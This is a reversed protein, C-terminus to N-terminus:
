RAAVRVPEVQRANPHGHGVITDLLAVLEPGRRRLEARHHLSLERLVKEGESTLLVHVERRDHAARQRHVLGQRLTRDVLEGASHHRICLTDAIEGIRLRGGDAAKLALLLQHQQPEIGIARAAEESFHLFRRIESRFRHLNQFDADTLRPM